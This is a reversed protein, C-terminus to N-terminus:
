GDQIWRAAREIIPISEPESLAVQDLTALRSEYVAVEEPGALFSAGDANELHVIGDIGTAFELKAFPSRSAAVLGASFPLVRLDVHDAEAVELLHQVQVLLVDPSGVGRYLTSEDLICHFDLGHREELAEQRKLRVEVLREVQATSYVGDWRSHLVARAYDATQLLGHVVYPEYAVIRAADWELEVYTDFGPPLVDAYAQWWM